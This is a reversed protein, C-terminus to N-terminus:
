KQTNHQSMLKMRGISAWNSSEQTDLFRISKIMAPRKLTTYAAAAIVCLIEDNIMENAHQLAAENSEAVAIQAPLITNDDETAINFSREAFFRLLLLIAALVIFFILIGM